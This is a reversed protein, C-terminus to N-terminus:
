VGPRFNDKPVHLGCATLRGLEGGPPLEIEVLILALAEHHLLPCAALVRHAGSARTLLKL